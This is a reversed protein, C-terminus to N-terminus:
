FWGKNKFYGILVLAVVAMLGLAFPYGMVWHLEPMNFRSVETDFNMGYVGAIFSLPIFIASLITLVKMIENMRNGQSSLYVDLMGGALERYTEIVDIAQVVHDYCDRLFVRTEATIRDSGDRLISNLLDREPWAARRLMLLDRKIRHIEILLGPSAKLILENELREIEEGYRELVPFFEDILADILAYALYDSGRKRILGRGLRIRERVAEWSDGPIEQFTVVYGAGLFLSIQEGILDTGQDIQVSRLIVFEHDDYPEVKPRQGCNVVDELALKHFGFREGLHAILEVDSLGEVNIWTVGPREKYAFADEIRDLRREEFHNPGYDILTIKVPETRESSPTLVGPASGPEIHRSKLSRRRGKARPRSM